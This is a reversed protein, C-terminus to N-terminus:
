PPSRSRRRASPLKRPRRLRRPSLRPQAALQRDSIKAIQAREWAEIKDLDYYKRGNIVAAAEPFELKEDREWRHITMASASYRERLNKRPVLRKATM